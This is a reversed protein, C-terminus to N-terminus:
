RRRLVALLGVGVLLLTAPEPVTNGTPQQNAVTATNLGAAARAAAAADPTLPTLAWQQSADKTLQYGAVLADRQLTQQITSSLVNIPSKPFMKQLPTVDVGVSSLLGAATDVFINGKIRIPGV